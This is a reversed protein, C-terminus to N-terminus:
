RWQVPDEDTKFNLTIKRNKVRSWVETVNTKLKGSYGPEGELRKLIGILEYLSLRKDRM